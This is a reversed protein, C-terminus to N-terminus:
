TLWSSWPLPIPMARWSQKEVWTIWCNSQASVCVPRCGWLDYSFEAPRWNAQEDGLVALSAVKRRYRDYIRYNYVYMREAFEGEPQNQLEIHVLVWAEEGNKLWVKFLKDALRKGMEADHMIQQLEQDLAEYRRQWDIDQYIDPFLLAVSLPFFQDLVEKWPSDLDAM